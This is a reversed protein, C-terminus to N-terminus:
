VVGCHPGRGAAVEVRATDCPRGSRPQHTVALGARRGPDHGSDFRLLGPELTSGGSPNARNDAGSFLLWCGAALLEASMEFVRVLQLSVMSSVSRIAVQDCPMVQGGSLGDSMERPPRWDNYREVLNEDEIRWPSDIQWLAATRTRRTTLRLARRVGLGARAMCFIAKVVGFGSMRRVEYALQELATDNLCIGDRDFDM